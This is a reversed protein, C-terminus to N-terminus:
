KAVHYAPIAAGDPYAHLVAQTYARGHIVAKLEELKRDHERGKKVAIVNAYPSDGGELLVADKPKFGAPKTYDNTLGGLAVSSLSRAIQAVNLEVFHLHLPNSAVDKPTAFLGVGPKLTIIHHKALLLLARGENSPDNPLAITAGRNLQSLHKIKKSYFGFPYVFTKGIPVIQYHHAKIQAQLYPIHQFINADISGNNLAVNPQVYDTFPVIDIHLHYRRLAERQAVKLLDVDAGSIVGVKIVAGRDTFAPLCHWVLLSSAFVVAIVGASKVRRHRALYDGVWQVLQVLVILVVVTEIMVTVNFREYGYNIALEGLGGGGVAGAMASYGILGIVTLTAGRILSPLSEALLVKTVIHYTNAGFAHATEFLDAPVETFATDCVQAFFPIAAITLPVIAAHIGITTGVLWQTLPILAVLLIIFPVSRTGNILLSLTTHVYRNAHLQKSGTLFLVVSLLLGIILAVFASIFVMYITQWTAQAVQLGLLHHM